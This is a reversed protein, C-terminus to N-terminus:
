KPFCHEQNKNLSIKRALKLVSSWLKREKEAPLGHAYAGLEKPSSPWLRSLLIKLHDDSMTPSKLLERRVSFLARTEKHEVYHFSVTEESCCDSGNVLTNYSPDTGIITDMGKHKNLYWQDVNGTISRVLGFAHFRHWKNRERTDEATTYLVERLCTATVLGPNGQLWKNHKGDSKGLCKADKEHWKEVLSKMTHRSLVYGAAGSNFSNENEKLAHGAYMVKSHDRSSLFKCLHEPIVFTHDNVFFAFEPNVTRHITEIM